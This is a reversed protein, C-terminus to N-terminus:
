RACPGGQGSGLLGMFCGCPNPLDVECGPLLAPIPCTLFVGPQAKADPSLSLLFPPDRPSPPPLSPAMSVWLALRERTM